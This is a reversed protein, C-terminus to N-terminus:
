ITIAVPPLGITYNLYLAVFLWCAYPIILGMSTYQNDLGLFVLLAISVGITILLIVIAATFRKGAFFTRMWAVNLILNVFYLTFIVPTHTTIVGAAVILGYLATWVVPFVWSPPTWNPIASRKENYWDAIKLNQNSMNIVTFVFASYAVISTYIPSSM